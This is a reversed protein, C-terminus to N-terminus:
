LVHKLYHRRSCSARRIRVRERHKVPCWFHTWKRKFTADVRVADRQVLQQVLPIHRIVEVYADVNHADMILEKKLWFSIGLHIFSHIFTHMCSGKNSGEWFVIKSKGGMFLCVWFSKREHCRSPCLLFHKHQMAKRIQVSRLLWVHWARRTWCHSFEGFALQLTASDREPVNLESIVKQRCEPWKCYRSRM